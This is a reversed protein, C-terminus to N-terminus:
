SRLEKLLSEAAERESFKEGTALLKELIKLATPNDGTQHLAFALHFQIDSNTPAATAAERLLKLGDDM